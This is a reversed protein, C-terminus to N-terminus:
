KISDSYNSFHEDIASLADNKLTEFDKESKAIPKSFYMKILWMLIGLSLLTVSLIAIKALRNENILEYIISSSLNFLFGCLFLFVGLFFVIAERKKEDLEKRAKMAADFYQHAMIKDVLKKQEKDM